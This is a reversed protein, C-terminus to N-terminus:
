REGMVTVWYPDEGVDIAWLTRKSILNAVVVRRLEPSVMVLNNMDGDITMYAVAGGADVYDVPVLANPDYIGVQPDHVRGMYVLGSNTDIKISALGLAVNMRKVSLNGANIVSMYPSWESIVDFTNGQSNFQGRLPGPDTGVTTVLAKNAVDLVSITSALNNFVYARVGSPDILISAPGNGVFVRMREGLSAADIFSVTNSGANACLLTKGDATLALERPRDGMTLRIRDTIEGAIVDIVEIADASPLAVYAKLGRQDLAMGAPGGETAIVGAVQGTGKDFILVNNSGGNTVYGTLGAVPRAPVSVFFAPSFGFGSRVAEAPQFTLCLLSSRKERVHFPFDIRVPAEAALLAAEGEETRLFADRVKITLGLYSGPPLVVDGIFRQRVMERGRIDSLKLAVPFEVGDERRASVAEITFRLRDAEQPFPQAYLLVEGEAELTPKVQTLMSECGFLLPLALFVM